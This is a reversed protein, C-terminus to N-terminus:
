SRREGGAAGRREGAGRGPRPLCEPASSRRTRFARPWKGKREAAAACPGLSGRLRPSLRARRSAGPIAPRARADWGAGHEVRRGALLLRVLPQLLLAALHQHRRAAGLSHRRGRSPFPPPVCRSAGTTTATASRGSRHARAGGYEALPSVLGLPLQVLLLLPADAQLQVDEHHPADRVWEVGLLGGVHGPPLLLHTAAPSPAEQPWKGGKM